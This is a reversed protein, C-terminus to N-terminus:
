GGTISVRLAAWFSLYQDVAGGAVFPPPTDSAKLNFDMGYRIIDAGGVVEFKPAIRVALSAGAVVSSTTTKKFWKAGLSGTDFVLRTGVHAGLTVIGLRLRGDAGFGAFSYSVNPVTTPGPNPSTSSVFFNHQGYTGSLGVESEGLPIRARAGVEYQQASTTTTQEDATGKGAVTSTGILREYRGILGINALVGGGAFALPYIAADLFPAAGLPLKYAAAAGLPENFDFSRSVGRPGAALEFAIPAGSDDDMAVQKRAKKRVVPAGDDDGEDSSSGKDDDEDEDEDNSKAVKKAKFPPADAKDEDQGGSEGQASASEEEEDDDAPAPAKAGSKSGGAPASKKHQTKHSKKSPWSKKRKAADAQAGTLLFALCILSAL